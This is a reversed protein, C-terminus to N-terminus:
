AAKGEYFKDLWGIIPTMTAARFVEREVMKGSTYTYGNGMPRTEVQPERIMLAFGIANGVEDRLAVGRPAEPKNDAIPYQM